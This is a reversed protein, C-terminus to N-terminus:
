RTSRRPQASMARESALARQRAMGHSSDDFWGTGDCIPCTQMAGTRAGCAPCPTWIKHSVDEPSQIRRSMAARRKDHEAGILKMWATAFVTAPEEAGDCVRLFQSQAKTIPPLTEREIAQMWYGYKNLIMLEAASFQSLDVKHSVLYNRKVILKWHDFLTKNVALLGFAIHRNHAM